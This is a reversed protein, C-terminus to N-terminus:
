HNNMHLVCKVKARIKNEDTQDNKRKKKEMVSGFWEFCVDYINKCSCSIQQRIPDKLNTTLIFSLEQDLNTWIAKQNGKSLQIRPKSLIEGSRQWEDIPDRVYYNM